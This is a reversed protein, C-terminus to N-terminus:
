RNREYLEVLVGSFDRSSVRSYEDGLVSVGADIMPEPTPHWDSDPYSILWVRPHQRERSALDEPSVERAYLDGVQEPRGDPAIGFDEPLQDVDVPERELYWEEGVRAFAPVYAIGDGPMSERAITDAAARLDEDDVPELDIRAMASLAILIVAAAAAAPRSRQVLWALGVAALIALVPVVSILYRDIFLPKVQSVVFLLVPPLLLWGAVLSFRWRWDGPESDKRSWGRWLAILGILILAGYALALPRRETAILKEAVGPLDLPGPREIWSIQDSASVLLLIALPATAIGIAAYTAAFRRTLSRVWPLFPLSVLHALIVLASFLSAYVALVSAAAYGAYLSPRDRRAAEVFLWTALTTLLLTLAYGRAQQAYVIAFANGAFLFGALLGVVDGFLRRALLATVPITAVVCIASLLRVWGESDGGWMWMHLLLYYLGSNADTNGLVDFIGGFSRDAVSVSAVEDHWFPDSGIGIGVLAAGVLVQAILGIEFWRPLGPVTTPRANV